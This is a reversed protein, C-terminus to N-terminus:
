AETNENNEDKEGTQIKGESLQTDPPKQETADMSSADVFPNSTDISILSSKQSDMKLLGSMVSVLLILCLLIKEM